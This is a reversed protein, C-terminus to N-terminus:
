FNHKGTMVLQNGTILINMLDVIASLVEIDTRCSNIVDRTFTRNELDFVQNTRICYEVIVDHASIEDHSRILDEIIDDVLWEDFIETNSVGVSKALVDIVNISEDEYLYGANRVIVQDPFGNGIITKYVEVFGQKLIKILIGYIEHMSPDLNKNELYEKEISRIARSTTINGGLIYGYNYASEAARIADDVSDKLMKQSLESDGGVEIVGMNLKLAGYRNQSHAVEVNWAGLKAYKDIVEDLNSKASKLTLEYLSEDYHFGKMVTSKLGCDIEDVFGLRLLYDGFDNVEKIEDIALVTDDSYSTLVYGKQGNDLQQTENSLVAIGNICRADINITAEYSGTKEIADIIERELSKDIITTNLLMAIDSLVLKAQATTNACAMLVLNVDHTNKYENNLDRKIITDLAREDYYPAICILHRGRMRCLNSLPKLLMKYTEETVKSGFVIVDANKYSAIKGDSNVYIEDLLSITSQYGKVIKKKTVGDKALECAISPCEIENYISSIMETIEDDGNSSIRVIKKIAEVLGEKDGRIPIAANEIEFVIHDKIETFLKIIDRPLIYKEDFMSRNEIYSKYISCAAVISTTTGDGVLFNLRSCINSALNYIVSDILSGCEVDFSINKMITYGDKTVHQYPYNSIIAPAGYAGFSRGLVEGLLTFVKEVREQMTGKDLVNILPEGRFFERRPDELIGECISPGVWDQVTTNQMVLDHNKM